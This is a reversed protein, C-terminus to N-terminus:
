EPRSLLQIPKWWAEPLGCALWKSHPSSPYDMDLPCEGLERLWQMYGVWDGSYLPEHCMAGTYSDHPGVKWARLWIPPEDQPGDMAHETVAYLYEIDGHEQGYPEFEVDNRQSLFWDMWASMPEGGHWDDDLQMAAAAMALQYGHGDTYGDCHRYFRAVEYVGRKWEGDVYADTERMLLTASRTSM